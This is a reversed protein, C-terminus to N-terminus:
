DALPLARTLVANLRAACKKRMESLSSTMKEQAFGYVKIKPETGSPRVILRLSGELEFILVDAKPLNSSRDSLLLDQRKVIKEEGLTTLGPDRLHNMIRHLAKMGEEGDPLNLSFQEEYFFGFRHYIEELLHIVTKKQLKQHLAIEAILCGSVIADKDRAHTGFLYGYSEEAGFLFPPSEPSAELLRIQEGIYKFGTLVEIFTHHYTHAIKKLLPTSVITSILTGPSQTNQCIFFACLAAIQNGNLIVPKGEHMVAVGLRDADPDTALLLDAKQQMMQALGLQLAEVAEPNPSPTTPFEGDIIVQEAVLNLNKFGWSSLAKPMLTIGTGHLSTFTIKLQNGHTHDDQPFFPLKSLAKLYVEDIEEELREILPSSLPATKICSWDRIHEIEETVQQDQPPVLQAGDWGYVKYGNYEKPNHSATIMVAAQCQLHRCAFSIFPTPRLQLFLFAKIGNGALVRATEIAFEHSHNRNDFGIVVGAKPNGHKLLHNALGQTAKRITYINVRNTGVGMIGRLGGTGFKLDTYFADNLSKPNKLLLRVEEQTKLDFPPALWQHARSTM